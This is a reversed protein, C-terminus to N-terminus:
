PQPQDLESLDVGEEKLVRRAIAFCDRGIPVGCYMSIHLLVERLQVLPVKTSRLAIQFHLEFEEMRQLGALMALNILSMTQQPLIGRAWTRGFVQNTVYVQWEADLGTRNRMSNEYHEDGLLKRRVAEGKPDVPTNWQTPQSM